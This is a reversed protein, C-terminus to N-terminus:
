GFVFIICIYYLSNKIVEGFHWLDFICIRCVKIVCVFFSVEVWNIRKENRSYNLMKKRNSKWINLLIFNKGSKKKLLILLAM